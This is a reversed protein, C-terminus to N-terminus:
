GQRFEIQGQPNLYVAKAGLDDVPDRNSGKRQVRVIKGHQTSIEDDGISHDLGSKANVRSVDPTQFVKAPPGKPVSPKVIVFDSLGRANEVTSAKNAKTIKVKGAKPSAKSSKKATSSAARKKAKRAM